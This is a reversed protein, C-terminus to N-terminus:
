AAPRPSVLGLSALVQGMHTDARHAVPWLIYILPGGLACVLSGLLCAARNWGSFVLWRGRSNALLVLLIGAHYLLIAAWASNLVYLGIPVALYPVVPAIRRTYAAM